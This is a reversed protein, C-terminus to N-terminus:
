DLYAMIQQKARLPRTGKTINLHTASEIGKSVGLIIDRETVFDYPKSLLLAELILAEGNGSTQSYLTEENYVTDKLGTQVPIGVSVASSSDAYRPM